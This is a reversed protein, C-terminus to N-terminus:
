ASPAPPRTLPDQTVSAPQSVGLADVRPAVPRDGAVIPLPPSPAYCSTCGCADIDTQGAAGISNPNPSEGLAAQAGDVATIMSTCNGSV